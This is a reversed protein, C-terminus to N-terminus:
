TGFRFISGAVTGILGGQVVFRTAIRLWVFARRQWSGDYMRKCTLRIWFVAFRDFLTPGDVLSTVRHYSIFARFHAEVKSVSYLEPSKIKDIIIYKELEDAGDITCPHLLVWIRGDQMLRYLLAAGRESIWNISESQNVEFTAARYLKVMRFYLDVCPDDPHKNLKYGGYVGRFYILEANKEIHRKLHGECYIRFYNLDEKAKAISNYYRQIM